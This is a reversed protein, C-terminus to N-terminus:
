KKVTVKTSCKGTNGEADYAVATFTHKGEAGGYAQCSADGGQLCYKVHFETNYPKDDVYFVVKTIKNGQLSKATAEMRFPSSQTVCKVDIGNCAPADINPAISLVVACYSRKVSEGFVLLVVIVVVAALILILAYEVLSQGRERMRCKGIKEVM